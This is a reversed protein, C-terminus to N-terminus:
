ETVSDSQRGNRPPQTWWGNGSRGEEPTLRGVTSASGRAHSSVRGARGPGARGTHLCGPSVRVPEREQTRLTAAPFCPPEQPGRHVSTQFAWGQRRRRSGWSGPITSLLVDGHSFSGRPVPWVRKQLDNRLDCGAAKTPLMPRAVALCVGARM